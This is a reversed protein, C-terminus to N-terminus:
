EGAESKRSRRRSRKEVVVVPETDEPRPTDPYKAELYGPAGYKDAPIVIEHEHPATGDPRKLEPWNASRSAATAM